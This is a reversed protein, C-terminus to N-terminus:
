QRFRQPRTVAGPPGPCDCNWGYNISPRDPMGQTAQPGFLQGSDKQYGPPTPSDPPEFTIRVAEHLASDIYPVETAAVQISAVGDQEEIDLSNM